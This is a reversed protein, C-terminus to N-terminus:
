ALAADQRAKNPNLIVQSADFEYPVTKGLMSLMITIRRDERKDFLGCLGDWRGGRIMVEDGRNFDTVSEVYGCLEVIRDDVVAPEISGAKHLVSVVGRTKLVSRLQGEDIWAFIYRGYLPLRRIEVRRAHRIEANYLPAYARIGEAILRDALAVTNVTSLEVVNAMLLVETQLLAETYDEGIVQWVSRM